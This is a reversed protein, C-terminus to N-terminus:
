GSVVTNKANKERGTGATPNSGVIKPDHTSHEVETSSNSTM